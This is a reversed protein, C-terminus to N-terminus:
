EKAAYYGYILQQPPINFQNPLSCLVPQPLGQDVFLTVTNMARIYRRQLVILVILLIFLYFNTLTM